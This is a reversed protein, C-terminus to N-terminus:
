MRRGINVGLMPATFSQISVAIRRIPPTVTPRRNLERSPAFERTLDSVYMDIRALYFNRASECMFRNFLNFPSAPNFILADLSPLSTPGDDRGAPLFSQALLGFDDHALMANGAGPVVDDGVQRRRRRRHQMRAGALRDPGAVERGEERHREDALLDAGLPMDFDRRRDAVDVAHPARRGEI